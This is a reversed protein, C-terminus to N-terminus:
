FPVEPYGLCAGLCSVVDKPVAFALTTASSHQIAHWSALGHGAEVSPNRALGAAPYPM